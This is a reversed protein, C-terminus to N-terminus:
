RYGQFWAQPLVLSRGLETAVAAAGYRNLHSPDTFYANQNPWRQSLDYVRLAHSRAFRQLYARFQQESAMRAEDLYVQTVPLNVFVVPIQHKQALQMVNNFAQTQKGDLNFDRYDADYKGEVKSYHQFYREPKFQELFPQFGTEDQLKAITSNPFDTFPASVSWRKLPEYHIKQLVPVASSVFDFAKTSTGTDSFRPLMTAACLGVVSSDVSPVTPRIGAALFQYSQSAIARDYTLDVRGSNFARVGDGWLLLRPLQDPSLIERLLLDVLQATAGNVGLNFIKLNPYGRSALIQQLVIPEIGQLARSSGVILIDPRGFTAVFRLYRQLQKDLQQSNFSPAAAIQLCGSSPKLHPLPRQAIPSSAPVVPPFATKPRQQQAPPVTAATVGEVMSM